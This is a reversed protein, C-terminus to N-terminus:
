SANGSKRMYRLYDPGEAWLRSSFDLLLTYTSSSAFADLAEDFPEGTEDCWKELMTRMIEVACTERQSGTVYEEGFGM